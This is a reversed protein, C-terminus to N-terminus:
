KQRLTQKPQYQSKGTPNLETTFFFFFFVPGLNSGRLSNYNTSYHKFQLLSYHTFVYELSGQPVVLVPFSPRVSSICNNITFNLESDELFFFRLLVEPNLTPRVTTHHVSPCPQLTRHTGQKLSVLVM